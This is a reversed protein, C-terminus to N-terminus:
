GGCCPYDPWAEGGLGTINVGVSKTETIRNANSIGGM